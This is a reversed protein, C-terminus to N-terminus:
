VHRDAEPIKLTIMTGKQYVSEIKLLDFRSYYLELRKSVNYLGYGSELSDLPSNEEMGINDAFEPVTRKGIRERIEALRKETMGIGNDEVTFCLSTGDQWGRVTITGRGRKNKIGHYLANEVLPQLLLKLIIKKEMTKEYDISYDLIDRYRIKQITLYSEIHKFEDYVSVWERGQNLSIRFFNSFARTISVVQDYQNGEALWIISDLTNYLFHPTIQAQLAKMESKQLNKQERINEEILNKIKGAMVNLNETLNNLEKVRPVDARADLDGEAIHGSLSVLAGISTDVNSSVSFQVLLSFGTVFIIIVCELIGLIFTREKIKKNAMATSEIELVIFDQLVESVL